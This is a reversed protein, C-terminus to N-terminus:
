KSVTPVDAVSEAFSGAGLLLPGEAEHRRGEGLLDVIAQLCKQRAARVPEGGDQEGARGLKQQLLGGRQARLHALEAALGRQQVELVALREDLDAMEGEERARVDRAGRARLAQVLAAIEADELYEQQMQEASITTLGREIADFDWPPRGHHAAEGSGKKARAKKPSGKDKLSPKKGRVGGELLKAPKLKKVRGSKKLLPELSFETSPFRGLQSSLPQGGQAGTATEAGGESKRKKAFPGESTGFPADAGGGAAGRRAEEAAQELARKEGPKRVILRKIM